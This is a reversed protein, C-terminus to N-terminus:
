RVRDLANMRREIEAVQMATIQGAACASLAKTMVARARQRLDDQALGHSKARSINLSKAVTELEATARAVLAQRSSSTMRGRGSRPRPAVHIPRSQRRQQADQAQALESLLLDFENKPM